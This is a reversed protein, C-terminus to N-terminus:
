LNDVQDCDDNNSTTDSENEEDGEHISEQEFLCRISLEFTDMGHKDTRANPDIVVCNMGRDQAECLLPLCTSPDLGTTMLHHRSFVGARVKGKGTVVLFTDHPQKSDMGERQRGVLARIPEKIVIKGQEDRPWDEISSSRPKTPPYPGQYEAHRGGGKGDCITLWTLNCTEAMIEQAAAQCLDAIADYM